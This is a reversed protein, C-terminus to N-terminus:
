APRFLMAVGPKLFSPPLRYSLTRIFQGIKVSQANGLLIAQNAFQPRQSCQNPLQRFLNGGQRALNHFQFSTQRLVTAVGAFRRGRISELGLRFRLTLCALFRRAALLPVGAVRQLFHRFHIM